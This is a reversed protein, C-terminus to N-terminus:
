RKGVKTLSWTVGDLCFSPQSVSIRFTDVSEDGGKGVVDQRPNFDNGLM